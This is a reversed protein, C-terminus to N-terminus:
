DTNERSKLTRDILDKYEEDYTLQRAWFVGVVQMEPIAEMILNKCAKFHAGTTLTDDILFIIKYGDILDVNLSLNNQIRSISREQDTKHFPKTSIKQSIAEAFPTGLVENTISCVRVLRDDYEPDQKCASPPIPVLLIDEYDSFKNMLNMLDGAFMCIARNKYYLRNKNEVNVPMKLNSIKQNAESRDYGGHNRDMYFLCKDDSTLLSGCDHSLKDFWRWEYINNNDSLM